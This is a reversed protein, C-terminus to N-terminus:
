GVYICMKQLVQPLSLPFIIDYLKVIVKNNLIVDPVSVTLKWQYKSYNYAVVFLKEVCFAVELALLHFCDANHDTLFTKM